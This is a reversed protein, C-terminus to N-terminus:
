SSHGGLFRFLPQRLLDNWNAFLMMGVLLALGLRYGAAQMNASLPRRVVGEYAYFLLHGGDLVPIPLFNLVALQVSIFGLFFVFQWFDYQAVRYAMATIKPM